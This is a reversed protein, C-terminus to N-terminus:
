PKPLVSCMTYEAVTAHEIPEITSRTPGTPM